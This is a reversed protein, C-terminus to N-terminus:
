AGTVKLRELSKSIREIGESLMDRDKSFALRLFGEGQRGFNSGPVVAVLGDYLLHNAIAESSMGFSSVDPLAYFAGRPIECFVGPIENLKSVVLDRRDKYESMMTEIQSQDGQIAEIGARQIFPSVCSATTQLLMMMREAVQPPAVITGLRWGTMSFAKSFGNSLVVRERCADISALSFYPVEGYTMRAYIEDSYIYIDYKEALDYIKRLEEESTIAGTPNGPNNIVLLRTNPTILPEIDDARIEFRNDSKLPYPVAVAGCMEITSLYTPFGPDPVLVEQGSNVLTFIAYFIAINAGPTVLIQELNPRFGRSGATAGQIVKTFDEIGWSSVYHTESNRLSSIAAEIINEPTDFDPDGIELHIVNKGKSELFKAEDILKFMPQGKINLANRSIERTM